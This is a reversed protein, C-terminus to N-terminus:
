SSDTRGDGVTRGLPPGVVDRMLSSLNVNLARLRKAKEATKADVTVTLSGTLTRGTRRRTPPRITPSPRDVPFVASREQLLRDLQDALTTNHFMNNMNHGKMMRGAAGHWRSFGIM